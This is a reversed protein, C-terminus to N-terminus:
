GFLFPNSASEEGVTTEPGHGPLLRTEPHCTLIVTRISEILQEGDGGPFDTRGVSGAFILDGCFVARGSPCYFVVHGPTHGPTHRVVVELSGVRLTQGEELLVRRTSAPKIQFGFQAAGGGELYYQLDAPHLYVPAEPWERCLAEVGAIHDFHAHTLLIKKIILGRSRVDAIMSECDFSPDIAASDGTQSDALVYSNNDLPGLLYTLIIPNM